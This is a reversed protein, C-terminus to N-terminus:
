QEQQIKKLIGVIEERKKELRTELRKLLDEENGETFELDADTLTPFKAQLKKAQENWNGKITFPSTVISSSNM